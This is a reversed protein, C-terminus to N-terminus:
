SRRRLLDAALAAALGVHRHGAAGIRRAEARRQRRHLAPDRLADHHRHVHQEEFPELHRAADAAGIRFPRRRLRQADLHPEVARRQALGADGVVELPGDVVAEGAVQDVRHLAALEQQDLADGLVSASTASRFGSTSWTVTLTFFRGGTCPRSHAPTCIVRPRSSAAVTTFTTLLVAIESSPRMLVRSRRKAKKPLSRSWARM